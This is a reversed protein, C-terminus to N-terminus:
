YVSSCARVLNGQDKRPDLACPGQSPVEIVHVLPFTKRRGSVVPYIVVDDDVGPLKSRWEIEVKRM